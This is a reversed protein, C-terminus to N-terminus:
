LRLMPSTCPRFFHIYMLIIICSCLEKRFYKAMESFVNLKAALLVSFHACICALSLREFLM